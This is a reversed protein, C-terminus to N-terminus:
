IGPVCGPARVMMVPTCVSRSLKDATSGLAWRSIGSRGHTSLIVLDAGSSTVYEAIAEAPKGHLLEVAPVVDLELKGKVQDLYSRAEAENMADNRKRVEEADESTFVGSLDTLSGVPQQVPEVVRVLVLEM